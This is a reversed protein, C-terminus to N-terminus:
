TCATGVLFSYNWNLSFSFILNENENENKEEIKQSMRNLVIKKTRIILLM